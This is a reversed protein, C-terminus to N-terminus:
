CPADVPGAQISLGDHTTGLARVGTIPTGCVFNLYTETLDGDTDTLLDLAGAGDALTWTISIESETHLDQAILVGWCTGGDPCDYRASTDLDLMSTAGDSSRDGHGDGATAPVAPVVSVLVAISLAFLGRTTHTM